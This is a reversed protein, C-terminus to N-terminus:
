RGALRLTGTSAGAPDFAACQITRDHSHRWSQESPYFLYVDLASDAWPVGVFSEFEAACRDFAEDAVQQEGPFSPGTTMDLVAYVEAFHATGCPVVAVGQVMEASPEDFCDGVRLTFVSETGADVVSGASDRQPQLAFGVALLVVFGVVWLGSIVLAWVALGKGDDRRARIQNLAIVAFVVSLLVGGLLSLVFAAVALGNTRGSRPVQQAWPPAPAAPLPPPPPPPPPPPLTTLHSPPGPSGWDPTAQSGDQRDQETM